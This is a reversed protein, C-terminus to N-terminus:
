FRKENSRTTFCVSKTSDSSTSSVVLSTRAFSSVSGLKHGRRRYRKNFSKGPNQPPPFPILNKFYQTSTSYRIQCLPFLVRLMIELVLAPQPLDNFSESLPLILTLHQLAFVHFLDKTVPTLLVNQRLTTLLFCPQSVSEKNACFKIYEKLFQTTSEPSYTKRPLAIPYIELDKSNHSSGSPLVVLSFKDSMESLLTSSLM